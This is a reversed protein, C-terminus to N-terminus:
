SEDQDQKRVFELVQALLTLVAGTIIGSLAYKGWRTIKNTDKDKYNTLLGLVGFGATTIVGLFKVLELSVSIWQMKSGEQPSATHREDGAFKSTLFHGSLFLVGYFLLLRHLATM